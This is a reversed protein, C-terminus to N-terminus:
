VALTDMFWFVATGHSLTMIILFVFYAIYILAYVAWVCTDVIGAIFGIKSLISAATLKGPKPVGRSAALALADAVLAKAKKAFFIAIISAVPFGCMIVSALAKSFAVDTAADVEPDSYAAYVPQPQPYQSDPDYNM